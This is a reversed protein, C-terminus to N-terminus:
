PKKCTNCEKCSKVYLSVDESMKYWFCTQRLKQITKTIGPHGAMKSDHNLELFEGMMASPVIFLLRFSDGEMWKYYLVGESVTLLAKNTWYYKVVPSLGQLEAQSPSSPAEIWQILHKLDIDEM